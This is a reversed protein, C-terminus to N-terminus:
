KDDMVCWDSHQSTPFNGLVYDQGWPRWDLLVSSVISYTVQTCLSWPAHPLCLNSIPCLPLAHAQNARAATIFSWLNASMYERVTRPALLRFELHWGPQVLRQLIWSFIQEMGRGAEPPQWCEKVQPQMVGMEAMMQRWMAKEEIRRDGKIEREQLSVQTAKLAQGSFGLYVGGRLIKLKIVDKLVYPFITM